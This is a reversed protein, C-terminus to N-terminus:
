FQESLFIFGRSLIFFLFNPRMQIQFIINYAFLAFKHHLVSFCLFILYVCCGGMVMNFSFTLVYFIFGLKEAEKGQGGGYFIPVQYTYMKISIFCQFVILQFFIKSIPSSIISLAPFFGSPTLINRISIQQPQGQQSYNGLLPPPLVM